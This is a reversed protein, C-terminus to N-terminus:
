KLFLWCAVLIVFILVFQFYFPFLVWWWSWTILNCLKLVVFVIGLFTLVSIGGSTNTKNIEM